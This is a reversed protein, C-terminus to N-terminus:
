KKIIKTVEDSDRLGAYTKQNIVLSPVSTVNYNLILAKVPSSELNSDFSFVHIDPLENRIYNLIFGQQECDACDEENSYFYLIPTASKNCQKSAKKVFLYQRIELVSYYKKLDLVQQNKKGLSNEMSTLKQGLEFLEDSIPNFNLALCPNESIIEYQVEANMADIRISDYINNLKTIKTDNIYNTAMIILLFTFAAIFFAAIFRSKPVERM